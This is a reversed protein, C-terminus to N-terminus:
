AKAPVDSRCLGFRPSLPSEFSSYRNQITGLKAGDRGRFLSAVMPFFRTLIFTFAMPFFVLLLSGVLPEFSFGAGLNASEHFSSLGTSSAVIQFCSFQM